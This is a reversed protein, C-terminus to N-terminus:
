AALERLLERADRLDPTDLHASFGDITAALRSRAEERRGMGKWLRALDTVAQLEFARAEQAVAVEIAVEFAREADADRGGLWVLFNGHLRHLHSQYVREQTEVRGNLLPELRSLAESVNGARATAEAFRAAGYRSLVDLGLKSSAPYRNRMGAMGEAFRGSDVLAWSHVVTAAERWARMGNGRAVEVASESMALAGKADRAYHQLWGACTLAFALHNPQGGTRALNVAADMQKSAEEPCGLMWLTWALYCSAEVPGAGSLASAQRPDAPDIAAVAHALHDRAESLKGLFYLPLGVALRAEFVTEPAENEASALWDRGKEVALELEGNAVEHLHLGLLPQSCRVDRGTRVDLDHADRYVQRLQGSGIGHEMAVAPALALQLRLEQELRDARDPMERLLELARSVLRMIERGAIGDAAREAARELWHVAREVAGGAECHIALQGAVEDTNGPFGSELRVAIVEHLRRRRSPSVRQQLVERYVTQVFVYRAGISGDPWVVEGSTRILRGSRSLGDCLEEIEEIELESAAAVLQTSFEMGILSAAELIAREHSDLRELQVEVMHQVSGPVELWREGRRRGISDPDVGFKWVGGSEKVFAEDVLYDTVARVFFPNGDTQSYVIPAFLKAIEENDFRQQLFMEVSENDFRELTFLSCVQKRVLDEKLRSVPHQAPMADASQVTGVLLLRAPERRQAMVRLLDLTAEDCWQLDEIVLVVTTARALGEILACFERRTREVNSNPLADTVAGSSGQVLWPLERAWTPAFSQLAETVTERLPGRCWDAIVELLPHYWEAQGRQEICQGRGILTRDDNRPSIENLTADVLTTKGVGPEGIVLATQRRGRTTADVLSRLAKLEPERGVLVQKEEQLDELTDPPAASDAGIFRYGQGRVTEIFRPAKTDDGLARRLERVSIRPMDDTVAIDKWVADLLDRKTVLEGRHQALYALVAFTKPRLPIPRDGKLLRAQRLHLRFPAFHIADIM